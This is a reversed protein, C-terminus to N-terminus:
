IRWVPEYGPHRDDGTAWDERGQGCVLTWRLSPMYGGQPLRQLLWGSRPRFWLRLSPLMLCEYHPLYPAKSDEEPGMVGM